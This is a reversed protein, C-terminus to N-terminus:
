ATQTAKRKRIAGRILAAFVGLMGGLVVSLALILAKKPKIPAPDTVIGGSVFNFNLQEPFKQSDLEVLQGRLSIIRDSFDGDNKRAALIEAERNNAIEILKAELERVQNDPYHGEPRKKLEDLEAKLLRTGRLYLPDTQNRIDASIEVRGRNQGSLQSLTVPETIKLTQAIALAEELNLIRDNLRVDFAQKRAGLQDQLKTLELTHQEELRKIQAHRKQSEAEELAAISQEIRGKEETRANLFNTRLKDVVLTDAQQVYTGLNSSAMETSSAELTITASDLFSTRKADPVSIKLASNLGKFLNDELSSSSLFAKFQNDAKDLFARKYENSALTQLYFETLLEPTIEELSFLSTLPTVTYPLPRQIQATAKYTPTSVFAFITGLVLAIATIVAIFWKQQWLSEVLEFLDIEDDPYRNPQEIPTNM